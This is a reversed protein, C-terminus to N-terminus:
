PAAQLPAPRPPTCAAGLSRHLLTRHQRGGGGVGGARRVELRLLSGANFSLQLDYKPTNITEFTALGAEITRALRLRRKGGM